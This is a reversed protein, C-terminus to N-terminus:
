GKPGRMLQAVNEGGPETIGCLGKLKDAIKQAPERLREVMMVVYDSTVDRPPAHNVFAKIALPSIDLSEAITTFTRRMDHPSVKIGTAEEIQDFAFKPEEIHGSKSNAPFIHEEKGVARRAILLDSVLDSMPLTLTCGNKTREGPISFTRADFDVDSWRLSAAERRRLGTFLLLRVYDAAVKNELKGVASFFTPLEDFKVMRERRRVKFWVRRLRRVPNKPLDDDREAAFNYIARFARMVGNATARGTGRGTARIDEAIKAHRAEVMEPTIDRLMRQLWDDLYNECAGRYGEASRPKLSTRALLYADLAGKLTLKNGRAKPDEGLDMKALVERAKDRAETVKLRDCRGITVRRRLGNALAAQAVFTRTNGVGSCLVGFGRLETDWTLEQKGSATPARLALVSRETLKTTAM